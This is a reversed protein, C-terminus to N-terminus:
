EQPVLLPFNNKKSTCSDRYTAGRLIDLVALAGEEVRLFSPLHYWTSFEVFGTLPVGEGVSGHALCVEGGQAFHLVHYSM